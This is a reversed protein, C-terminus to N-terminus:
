VLYSNCVIHSVYSYLINYRYVATYESHIAIPNLYIEMYNYQLNDFMSFVALIAIYYTVPLTSSEPIDRINHLPNWWTRIRICIGM